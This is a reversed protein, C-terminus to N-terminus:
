AGRRACAIIIIISANATSPSQSATSRDEHHRVETHQRCYMRAAVSAELLVAQDVEARADRRDAALWALVHEVDLQLEGAARLGLAQMRRASTTGSASLSSRRTASGPARRRRRRTAALGDRALKAAADDLQDEVRAAGAASGSPARPEPRRPPPPAPARDRDRRVARLSFTLPIPPHDAPLYWRDDDRHELFPFAQYCTHPYEEFAVIRLGAGLIADFIEALPHPYYYETKTSKANPDAYNGGTPVLAIPEPVAFYTYKIELGRAGVPEFILM